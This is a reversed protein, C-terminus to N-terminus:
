ISWEERDKGQPVTISMRIGSVPDFNGSVIEGRIIVEQMQRLKLCQHRRQRMRHMRYSFGPAVNNIRYALEWSFVPGFYESKPEDNRFIHRSFKKTGARSKKGEPAM